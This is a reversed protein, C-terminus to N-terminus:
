IRNDVDSKGKLLAKQIRYYRYLEWYQNVKRQRIDSPEIEQAETWLFRLEERMQTIYRQHSLERKQDSVLKFNELKKM